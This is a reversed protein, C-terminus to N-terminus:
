FIAREVIDQAMEAHGTEAISLINLSKVIGFGIEVIGIEQIPLAILGEFQFISGQQMIKGM